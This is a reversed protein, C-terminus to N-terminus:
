CCCPGISLLVMLPMGNLAELPLLLVVGMVVLIGSHRAQQATNPQRAAPAHSTCSRALPATCLVGGAASRRM